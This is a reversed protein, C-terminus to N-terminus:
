SSVPQLSPGCALLDDGLSRARDETWRESEVLNRTVERAAELAAGVAPERADESFLLTDATERIVAVEAPQLKTASLDELTKVVRGYAQAREGTV